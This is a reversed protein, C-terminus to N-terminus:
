FRFLIIFKRNYLFDNGPQFNPDSLQKEMYLDIKRRTSHSINLENRCGRKLYTNYIDKSKKILYQSNTIKSYNQADLWFHLNEESNIIKNCIISILKYFGISM